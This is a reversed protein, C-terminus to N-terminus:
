FQKDEVVFEGERTIISLSRRISIKGTLVVYLADGDAGEAFLTQGEPVRYLDITELLRELGEDDLRAFLPTRALAALVLAPDIIM